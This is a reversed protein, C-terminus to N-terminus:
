PACKEKMTDGIGGKAASLGAGAEGPSAPSCALDLPRESHCLLHPGGSGGEFVEEIRGAKSHRLIWQQPSNM